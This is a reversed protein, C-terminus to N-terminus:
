FLLTYELPCFFNKLNSKTIFLEHLLQRIRINEYNNNMNRESIMLCAVLYSLEDVDFM